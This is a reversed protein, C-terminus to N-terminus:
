TDMVNVLLYIRPNSPYLLVKIMYIYICVYIHKKKSLVHDRMQYINNLKLFTAHVSLYQNYMISFMYIACQNRNNRPPYVRRETARKNEM